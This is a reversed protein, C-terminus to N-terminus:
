IITNKKKVTVNKNDGGKSIGGSRTPKERNEKNIIIQVPVHKKYYELDKKLSRNQHEIELIQQVVTRPVPLAANEKQLEDVRKELFAIKTKLAVIVQNLESIQNTTQQNYIEYVEESDYYDDSM